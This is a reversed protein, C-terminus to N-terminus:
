YARAGVGVGPGSTTATTSVGHRHGEHGVSASTSCGSYIVTVVAMGLIAAITKMRRGM